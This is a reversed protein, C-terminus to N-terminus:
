WVEFRTQFSQQTLREKLENFRNTISVIPDISGVQLKIEGQYLDEISSVTTHRVPSDQSRIEWRGNDICIMGVIFLDQQFLQQETILLPDSTKHWNSLLKYYKQVQKTAQIKASRASSVRAKKTVVFSQDTDSCHLAISWNYDITMGINSHTCM